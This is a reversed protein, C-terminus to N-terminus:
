GQFFYVEQLIQPLKPLYGYAILATFAMNLYAAFFFKLLLSGQEKDVQSHSELRTLTILAWKLFMNLLTSFVVIAYILGEATLYNITFTRCVDRTDSLLAYVSKFGGASILTQLTALCYCAGIQGAAYSVCGTDPSNYCESSSCKTVSSTSVCPCYSTSTGTNEVPCIGGGADTKCASVAYTGVIGPSAYDTGVSYQGYFTEPLISNCSADLTVRNKGQPRQITVSNYQVPSYSQPIITSCLTSYPLAKSAVGVICNFM